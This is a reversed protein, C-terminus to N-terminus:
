QKRDRKEDAASVKRVGVPAGPTSVRVPVFTACAALIRRNRDGTMLFGFFRRFRGSAKVILLGVM